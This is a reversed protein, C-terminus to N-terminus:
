ILAHLCEALPELVSNAFCISWHWRCWYTPILLILLLLVLLLLNIWGNGM